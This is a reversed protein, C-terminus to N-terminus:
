DGLGPLAVHRVTAPNTRQEHRPPLVPLALATTEGNRIDGELVFLTRDRATYREEHGRESHAFLHGSLEGDAAFMFRRRHEPDQCVFVVYPCGLATARWWVVLLTEYRLFKDYNKDVRRTRDFEVFVRVDRDVTAVDLLADPQVPRFYADPVDSPHWGCDGLVATAHSM